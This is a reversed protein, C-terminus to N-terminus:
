ALREVRVQRLLTDILGPEPSGPLLTAVDAAGAAVGLRVAELLPRGGLLGAAIGASVSDGAGIASVRRVPPAVLRWIAPGDAVLAGEAGLTVVAAQAGDAVIQRAAVAVDAISPLPRGLSDALERRNLKAVRPREALALRFAEGPTDLITPRPRAQRIIAAFFAASLGPPQSGNLVVVTSEPLRAAIRRRLRREAAPEVAAGPENVVTESRGPDIILTCYRAPGRLRVADLSLGGARAGRVIAEAAEGAVFGTVTVPVGLARGARAVNLGKGSALPIVEAARHVAGAAFGPVVLLRDYCLNPCVCLIV